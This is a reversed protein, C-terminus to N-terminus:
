AKAVAAAWAALHGEVEDDRMDPFFTADETWAERVSDTTVWFGVALGALFASGLATTELVTPRIAPTRLIDAQFQMLLNNRAAGGDVRLGSLRLGADAEMAGLIDAIQLAIGELVARAIHAKTTYGTIGTFTGRADPRWHPAGLGALAPVFVVGGSDPVSAALAEIEEATDIIGLQDRLWQVAAGAIFASGELAYTTEGNLRWGVTTLLGNESPVARAGTNMLIFAGTGYTCKADGSGFCAQGFLASQQDGAMGAVPIGDPLFSLGRTEGLVEANECIRPPEGPVDLLGLLSDDWDMTNINFLLTRSANSPDTAHAGCLRWALRTDITGFLLEGREARELMRCMTSCGSPRPERSTPTWSWGPRAACATKTAPRRSIQASTRRGAIRGSWRETSPRGLRRMGSSTERQNTIGIAVIEVDSVKALAATVAAEVSAWIEEVDHEVHGPEPYHNPFEVNAQAIM